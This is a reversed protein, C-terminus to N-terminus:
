DLSVSGWVRYFCLVFLHPSQPHRISDVVLALIKARKPMIHKDDVDKEVDKEQVEVCRSQYFDHRSYEKM